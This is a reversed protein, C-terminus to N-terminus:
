TKEPRTLSKKTDKKRYKEGRKEKRKKKKFKMEKRGCQMNQMSPHHRM